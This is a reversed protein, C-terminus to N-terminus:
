YYIISRTQDSLPGYIIRVTGFITSIHKVNKARVRRIGMKLHVVCVCVCLFTFQNKSISIQYGM